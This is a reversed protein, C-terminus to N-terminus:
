EIIQRVEVLAHNILQHITIVSNQLKDVTTNSDDSEISDHDTMSQDHIKKFEELENLCKKDLFDRLDNWLHLNTLIYLCNEHEGVVLGTSRSSFTSVRIVSDWLRDQITPNFAAM